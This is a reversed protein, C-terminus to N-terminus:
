PNSDTRVLYFRYALCPSRSFIQHKNIPVFFCPRAPEHLFRPLCLVCIAVLITPWQLCQFVIGFRRANAMNHVASDRPKHM